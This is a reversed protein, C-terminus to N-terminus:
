AEGKPPTIISIGDIVVTASIREETNCLGSHGVALADYKIRKHLNRATEGASVFDDVAIIYDNARLLQTEMGSNWSHNNTDNDKRVLGWRVGLMYSLVSAMAVGSCGIGVLFVRQKKIHKTALHLAIAKKMSGLLRKRAGVGMADNGHYSAM